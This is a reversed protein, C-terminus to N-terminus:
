STPAAEERRRWVGLGFGIIVLFLAALSVSRGGHVSRPRFVLEVISSRPGGAGPDVRVGRLVYNVRHIPVRVGDVEVQWGAPYYIESMVLLVPGDATVRYRLHHIDRELLEVSGAAAAAPDLFGVQETTLARTSTDFGQLLANLIEEDGRARAAEGVLWAPGLAGGYKYIHVDGSSFVMEFRDRPLQDGYILYRVNLMDLLNPLQMRGQPQRELLQQYSRLKAPSYGEVDELGQAMWYNGPVPLGLNLLRFPGQQETLFQAHPNSAAVDPRDARPVTNILKANVVWLDAVVLLGVAAVAVRAPLIRRLSFYLLLAALGAFGTVRLMDRWFITYAERAAGQGIRAAAADTYGTRFATKGALVVLFLVGLVVAALRLGKIWRDREEEKLELLAQLGLAALVATALLLLILIMAPVRFKAFFPLIEYLPRYLLVFWKGFSVFLSFTGLVVLVQVLKERRRLIVAVIALMLPVLGMYYPHDTFPMYGWYTGKGFGFWSPVLFTLAEMPHFSWNTAYDYSVGGGVAGGGRISFHSYEYVPWLLYAALALALVGVGMLGGLRLLHGKLEREKRHQIADVLFYLGVMMLGYYAIQMHLALLQMGITAALLSAALLNPRHLFRRTLLFVLPLYAITFLKGGHAVPGLIIEQPSFFFVVAGLLSLFADLKLDRLLLYTFLGGMFHHFLIHIAPSGLFLIKCLPLLWMIPYAGPAFQLSGFSPMGSFIYPNWLPFIGRQMMERGWREFTAAPISDGSATFVQGGLVLDKFFIIILLYLVAVALLGELWPRIAVRNTDATSLENSGRKALMM